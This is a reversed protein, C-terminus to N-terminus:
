QSNGTKDQKATALAFLGLIADFANNGAMRSKSLIAKAIVVKFPLEEM